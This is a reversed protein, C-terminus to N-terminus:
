REKAVGAGGRRDLHSPRMTIRSPFNPRCAVTELVTRATLGLLSGVEESGIARLEFPVQTGPIPQLMPSSAIKKAINNVVRASIDEGLVDVLETIASQLRAARHTSM